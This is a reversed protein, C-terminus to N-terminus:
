PAGGNPRSVGRAMGALGGAATGVISACLEKSDGLFVISLGAIVLLAAVICIQEIHPWM